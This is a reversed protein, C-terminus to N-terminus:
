RGRRNKGGRALIILRLLQLISSAAAAVYTMAASKLVKTAGDMEGNDLVNHTRLFELARASANFEVPLTVIHFAVGFTFLVVGIYILPKFYSLLIGAIVIYLGAKSGFNAPAVIASRVKLPFYEENHQMAHGCEHAAVGIAAISTSGYVADSLNLTKSMPNYHDTLNGRIHEVKVDYIGSDQLIKQAVQAGTMGSRSVVKAYKKFTSNVGASAMMSLAAGILVLIYTWNYFMGYGMGPMVINDTLLIM